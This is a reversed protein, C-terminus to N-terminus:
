ALVEDGLMKETEDIASRLQALQLNQFMYEQGNRMRHVLVDFENSKIIDNEILLSLLVKQRIEIEMLTSKLDVIDKSLKLYERSDM